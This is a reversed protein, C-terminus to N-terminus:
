VPENWSTELQTHLQIRVVVTWSDRRVPCAHPAGFAGQKVSLLHLAGRQTSYPTYSTVSFTAVSPRTSHTDGDGEV